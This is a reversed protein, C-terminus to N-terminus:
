NPSFSLAWHLDTFFTTLCYVVTVIHTRIIKSDVVSLSALNCSICIEHLIQPKWKSIFIYQFFYRFNTRNLVCIVDMLIKLIVDCSHRNPISIQLNFFVPSWIFSIWTNWLSTSYLVWVVSMVCEFISVLLNQSDSYM